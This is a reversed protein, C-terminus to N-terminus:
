FLEGQMRKREAAKIAEQTGTMFYPLFQRMFGVAYLQAERQSGFLGNAASPRLESQGGGRWYVAYGYVWRGDELVSTLITIREERSETITWTAQAEIPAAGTISDIKLREYPNENKM